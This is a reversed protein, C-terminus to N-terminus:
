NAPLLSNEKNTVSVRLNIKSLQSQTHHEPLTNGCRVGTRDQQRAPGPVMAMSEGQKLLLIFLLLPPFPLPQEFPLASCPPAKYPCNTIFVLQWPYDQLWQEWRPVKTPFCKPVLRGWRSHSRYFSGLSPQVGTGQVRCPLLTMTQGAVERQPVQLALKLLSWSPFSVCCLGCPDRLAAVATGAARPEPSLGQAAVPLSWGVEM